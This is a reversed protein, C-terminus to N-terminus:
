QADAEEVTVVARPYDRDIRKHAHLDVIQSDDAYAVGNLADQIAKAINDVDRRRRDGMYAVVTLVIPATTPRLGAAQALVAVAREYRRTPEPTYSHGRVTRARAKPVPQGPVTFTTM